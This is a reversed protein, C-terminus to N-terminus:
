VEDANEFFLPLPLLSRLFPNGAILSSTYPTIPSFFFETAARPSFTFEAAESPSAERLAPEGGSVRLCLREGNEIEFVFAGDEVIRLSCQLKVFADLFSRYKFINFSYAPEMTFSEAFRSLAKLKETEHPHANVKVVTGPPYSKLCLHIIEALGEADKLNVESILNEEENYILYGSFKEGDLVAYVSSKWSALIDFFRDRRRVFGAGKEPKAEHMLRIEEILAL